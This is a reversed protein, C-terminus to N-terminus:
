NSRPVWSTAYANSSSRCYSPGASCTARDVLNALRRAHEETRFEHGARDGEEDFLELIRRRLGGLFDADMGTELVVYGQEDLQRLEHQTM